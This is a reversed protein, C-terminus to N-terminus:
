CKIRWLKPEIINKQQKLILPLAKLVVPAKLASWNIEDAM